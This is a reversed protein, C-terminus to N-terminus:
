MNIQALMYRAYEGTPMREWGAAMGTRYETLAAQILDAYRFPLNALGWEGGERKSLILGELKYALVRCLNLIIYMPSEAIDVAANEIDGM